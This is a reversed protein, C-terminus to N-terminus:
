FLEPKIKKIKMFCFRQLQKFDIKPMKNKKCIDWTHEVVLDHFVTNLLRPICKNNWTGEDLTIKAITKEVLATTIYDVVVEDEIMKTGATIPAGMTRNHKEKFETTVIKAWTQRGYQNHFAYNKIVIGEGHGKGDEILFTNDELVKMLNDLTPNKIIRLPQIYDVCYEECVAALDDYHMYTDNGNLIMDFVYFKRWATERYTKLSHPVLWEGFVHVDPNTFCFETLAQNEIMANMFGANDSGISLERNRSGYKMENTASDHWAHANTGDIKPFVYIDGLLIGDVEDSGLKEVHQYKFYESM